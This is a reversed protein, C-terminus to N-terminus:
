TVRQDAIRLGNPTRALELRLRTPGAGPAIARRQGGCVLQSSSLVATATLVVHGGSTTAHVQSYRTRVGSLGCGVPVLRALLAADAALLGGPLYVAQLLVANRTAFAKARMADLGALTSAWDVPRVAVPAVAAPSRHEARGEARAWLTGALGLGTALAAAVGIALVRRRPRRRPPRPIVPRPRPGVLRTPAAGSPPAHPRDFAPRSSDGVASSRRSAAAPPRGAPQAAHRPGSRLVPQPDRRAVGASLEVAVPQGSHRLDLALDAATGRRQPDVSLARGLVASMAPAVGAAALRQAIDDLRGQAALALAADPSDAPWPPAGTLAHLAVGALMFVDSQAGPVCGVAVAPDVYAPTAEADADDGTLRAVGVDALQATGTATFLINAASVDGHVVGEGHLYALAAAIPAVATIVEGPTLRGRASLLDGLSGGTALDLVLVVAGDTPVISHLRVLNPHDLAALLAAETHARQLQDAGNVQIRKLAVPAGSSAVQAQWVDGSSGSGLLKQVTYGRLKFAGAM